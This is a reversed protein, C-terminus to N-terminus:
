TEQASRGAPRKTRNGAGRSSSSSSSLIMHTYLYSLKKGVSMRPNWSLSSSPQVWAKSLVWVPEVDCRSQTTSRKLMHKVPAFTRRYLPSRVTHRRQICKANNTIFNFPQPGITRKIYLHVFVTRLFERKVRYIVYTLESSAHTFVRPIDLRFRRSYSLSAM